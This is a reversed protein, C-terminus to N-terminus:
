AFDQLMLRLQRGVQVVLNHVQFRVGRAPYDTPSHEGGASGDAGSPFGTLGDRSVAKDVYRCLGAELASWKLTAVWGCEVNRHFGGAEDKNM